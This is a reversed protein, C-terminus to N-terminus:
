PQCLELNAETETNIVAMEASRNEKDTRARTIEIYSHIGMNEVEFIVDQIQSSNQSQLIITKFNSLRTLIQESYDIDEQVTIQRPIIDEMITTTASDTHTSNCEILELLLSESNELIEMTEVKIERYVNETNEISEIYELIDTKISDVDGQKSGSSLKTTYSNKGGGSKSLGSLGGGGLVKSSLQALLENIIEDLEDALRLQELPGGLVDLTSGEVISGPTVTDCTEAGNEDTTCEKDDLFGRGSQYEAIAKAVAGNRVQQAQFDTEITKTYINERIISNWGRWGGLKFNGSTFDDVNDIVETLTCTTRDRYSSFYNKSVIIRVETQFSGCLGGLASGEIFEGVAEDATEGLFEGLDTVFAPNGDFGTNIWDLIGGTLNEILTNRLIVTLGDLLCEKTTAIEQHATVGADTVRLAGTATQVLSSVGGGLLGGVLCSTGANASFPVALVIFFLVAILKKYFYM